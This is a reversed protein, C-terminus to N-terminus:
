DCGGRSDYKGEVVLVRMKLVRPFKGLLYKDADERQERALRDNRKIPNVLSKQQM